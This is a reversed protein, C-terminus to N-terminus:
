RIGSAYDEEDLLDEVTGAPKAREQGRKSTFQKPVFGEKTDVSNFYGASFGGTFAGHFVAEGRAKAVSGDARKQLVRNNGERLALQRNTVGKEDLAEIDDKRLKTGLFM